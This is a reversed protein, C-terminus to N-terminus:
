RAFSSSASFASACFSPTSSNLNEVLSSINVAIPNQFQSEELEHLQFLGSARRPNNIAPFSKKKSVSSVSVVSVKRLTRLFDARETFDTDLVTKSRPLLARSARQRLCDRKKTRIRYADFRPQGPKIMCLVLLARGVYLYISKLLFSFGMDGNGITTTRIKVTNNMTKLTMGSRGPWGSM